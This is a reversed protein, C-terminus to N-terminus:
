GGKKLWSEAIARFDLKRLTRVADSGVEMLSMGFYGFVFGLAGFMAPDPPKDLWKLLAAPLWLACALGVLFYAIREARSVAQARLAAVVAGFLGSLGSVQNIGFKVLLAELDM